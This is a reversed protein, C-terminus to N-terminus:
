TILKFNQEEAAFWFKSYDSKSSVECKETGDHVRSLPCQIKHTTLQSAAVRIIEQVILQCCNVLKYM